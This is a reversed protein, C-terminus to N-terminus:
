GLLGFLHGLADVSDVLLDTEGALVVASAREAPDSGGIRLGATLALQERRLPPFPAGPPSGKVQDAVVALAQEVEAALVAVQPHGPGSGPLEAHLALVAQVCARIDAM